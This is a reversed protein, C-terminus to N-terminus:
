QHGASSPGGGWQPAAAGPPLSFVTSNRSYRNQSSARKGGPARSVRRVGEPGPVPGSDTLSIGRQQAPHRNGGAHDSASTYDPSHVPSRGILETTEYSTPSAAFFPDGSSDSDRNLLPAPSSSSTHASRPIPSEYRMGAGAGPGSFDSFNDPSQPPQVLRANSAGYDYSGSEDSSRANVVSSASSMPNSPGRNHGGAALPAPLMLLTAANGSDNRPRQPAAVSSSDVTSSDYKTHDFDSNSAYSYRNTDTRDIRACTDTLALLYCQFRHNNGGTM